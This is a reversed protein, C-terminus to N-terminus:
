FETDSNGGSENVSAGSMPNGAMDTASTSPTWVMRGKRAGTRRTGSTLAGFTITINNGVRQMTASYTANTAVYDADLNLPTAAATLNTRTSNAADYIELKDATGAETVRATVALASGDWGSLISAPLMPESFMLTLVDGADLTGTTGGNVAQLDNASPATRDVTFTTVATTTVHAPLAKDTAIFRLEYTGGNVLGTTNLSCSYTSGTAPATATCLTTWLAAGTQRYQMQVSAIGSIDTATASVNITGGVSAGAAPSTNTVTPGNNDVTRTQVASAGTNGANDAALVRFDYVGDTAGASSFNCTYPLTSVTCIDTWTTTGTPAYQFRVNAIGSGLDTATAVM